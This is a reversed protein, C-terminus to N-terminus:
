CLINTNVESYLLNLSISPGCTLEALKLQLLYRFAVASSEHQGDPKDRRQREDSFQLPAVSVFLLVTFLLTVIQLIADEPINRRTARTPVSTESSILAEMM